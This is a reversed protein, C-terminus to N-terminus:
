KDLFLIIDEFKIPYPLLKTISMEMDISKIERFYISHQHAQKM